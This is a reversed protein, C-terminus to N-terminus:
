ASVSSSCSHVTHRIRRMLRKVFMHIVCSYQTVTKHLLYFCAFGKFKLHYDLLM